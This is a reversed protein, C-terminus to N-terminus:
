EDAFTADVRVHSRHGRGDSPMRFVVVPDREPELDNVASMRVQRRTRRVEGDHDINEVADGFQREGRECRVPRLGTPIAEGVPGLQEPSVREQVGVDM